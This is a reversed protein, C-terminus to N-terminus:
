LMYPNDTSITPKAIQSTRPVINHKAIPTSPKYVNCRNRQLTEVSLMKKEGIKIAEVRPTLSNFSEARRSM